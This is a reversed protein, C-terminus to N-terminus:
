KDGPNPSPLFIPSSHNHRLLIQRKKGGGGGRKKISIEVVEEYITNNFMANPPKAGKCTEGM